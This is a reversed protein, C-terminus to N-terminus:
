FMAEPFGSFPERRCQGSARAISEPTDVEYTARGTIRNVVFNVDFDVREGQYSAQYTLNLEAATPASRFEEIFEACKICFRGAVLDVTYRPSERIERSPRSDDRARSTGVIDCVIDFREAAQAAAQHPALVALAGLGFSVLRKM